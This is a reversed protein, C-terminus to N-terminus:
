GGCREKLDNSLFVHVSVVHDVGEEAHWARQNADNVNLSQRSSRCV